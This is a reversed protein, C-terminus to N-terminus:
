TSHNLLRHCLYGERVGYPSIYLTEGCLGQSLADMLVIGPLLTHLRDPCHHLILKRTKRGKKLLLKALTHLEDPTLMRNDAPKEYVDNAVELVARATGGIGCVMAKRPLETQGLVAQVVQQIEEIEEKKPWIKKVYRHFLNLSGIPLSQPQLLVGNEVKSVETSGGGIDFVVCDDLATGHLAGYYGLQAELEGSIVDVVIGTKKEIEAVAEATNAINRLSATAFVYMEEMGVHHLLTRFQMLVECARAIGAQSLVGEQIYGALGAMEKESFLLEFATESQVHYVSLRVSNSGLDVIAYKM